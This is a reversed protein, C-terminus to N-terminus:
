CSQTRAFIKIQLSNHTKYFQHDHQSIIVLHRQEASVNSSHTIEFYKFWVFFSISVYKQQLFDVSGESSVIRECVQCTFGRLVIPPICFFFRSSKCDILSPLLWSEWNFTIRKKNLLMTHFPQHTSCASFFIQLSFWKVTFMMRKWDNWPM